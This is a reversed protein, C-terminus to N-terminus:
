HSTLDITLIWVVPHPDGKNGGSYAENWQYNIRGAGSIEYHVTRSFGDERPRAAKGRLIGSTNVAPIQGPNQSVHDYFQQASELGVADVLGNWRDLFQHHVLVRFKPKAPPKGGPRRGPAFPRYAKEGAM